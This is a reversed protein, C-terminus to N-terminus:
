TYTESFNKNYIISKIYCMEVCPMNINSSIHYAVVSLGAEDALLKALNKGRISMVYVLYVRAPSAMVRREAM